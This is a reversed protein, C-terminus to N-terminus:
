SAAAAASTTPTQWPLGRRLLMSCACASADCLHYNADPLLNPTGYPKIASVLLSCLRGIYAVSRAPFSNVKSTYFGQELARVREAPTGHHTVSGFDTDGIDYFAQGAVQINIQSHAKRLEGLYFGALFDAHLELLKATPSSSLLQTRISGFDLFFQVIHGFEHACVTAVAIDGNASEMQRRLLGLGLLITGQSAPFVTEHMAFANQDVSDDYYGFGPEQQFVQTMFRIQRGLAVDFAHNGSRPVIQFTTQEVSSRGADKMAGVLCCGLNDIPVTVVRSALAQRGQLCLGCAM